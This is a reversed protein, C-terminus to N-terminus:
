IAWQPHMCNTTSHLHARVGWRGEEKTLNERQNRVIVMTYNGVVFKGMNPLIYSANVISRTGM